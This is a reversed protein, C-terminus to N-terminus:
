FTTNLSFGFTRTSPYQADGIFGLGNKSTNRLTSNTNRLPDKAASSTSSNVQNSAEPDAYGKNGSALIVFPNRANLSLKFTELGIKKIMTKPFSYSVAIERVKFASADILNHKGLNSAQGFYAQTKNASGTLSSNGGTLVSTNSIYDIEPTAPNDIVSGPYLFGVNRDFEATDVLHGNWTLNYKTQSLFYGGSRYDMTFSLGIGKYEFSNTLGLIYDPTVKGLNKFTADPSPRGQADVIVRGNDDRKWDTGTIYPFSLGEVASINGDIQSNGTDTIVIKSSEGADIVKTDYSSFSVRGNWKFNPTSIPAFGLDIEIGKGKLKGSNTKKKELGTTTGLSANTILDNTNTIYGAVDLTIKNKFFGFNIGGELTTYTEPKINPDTILYSDNYSNGTNTFPFGGSISGLNLIDYAQVPDLSGVKTYNAYVKLNSLTSKDELSSFARTPIFSVGASPYFYFQNGVSAVSNGEYRGTLNLFLYDSYNFDANLFTATSRTQITKNDLTSPVAPNVVNSINYQGAVKLNTGGQSIRNSYDYQVNQGINFKVKTKESLDYNFNLMLDGYYYTSGFKSQYFESPSSFSGDATDPSIGENAYSIQDINRLQLSGNYLVEIHKNFEYGANLGLNIFNNTEELRNNDRAWYPNQYYGNWGYLGRDKFKEIPVNTPTQLLNTLLTYDSRSTAANVNAQKTRQNTFTVNGGLTLKKLKKGANLMFTNRNLNDGEVIFSRRLNGLNLNIYSDAGGAGVNLNNQLITGSQYFKKIEDNGLASYPAEIIDGNADPLGVQGVTGDLLPGWGGNEQPDRVNYWGQGYKQQREPVFSVNEIDIASNFSVTLAEEKAGKKTQVLVVGQKGQSGYLAAGQAGKLVTVNEITDPPLSALVNATSIVNDIVVLAETNGTFSLMSRIRISNAGGVGNTTNNITLGSVKGVLSRVVDPNSAEKLEDSSVTSYSSTVASKKKKIGVAGTIVVEGLEVSDDKLKVKLTGSNAVVEQTKMGIYSFVLTQSPTAKISFKGDLDTQTGTKTGKVLVSVGPLPLGANDSVTGSVVREQAFMIQSMLALFLVLFRNLKLNM